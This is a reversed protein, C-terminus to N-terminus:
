RCGGGRRQPADGMNVAIKFDASLGDSTYFALRQEIAKGNADHGDLIGMVTHGEGHGQQEARLSSRRKAAGRSVLIKTTRYRILL